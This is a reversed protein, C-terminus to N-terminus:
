RWPVWVPAEVSAITLGTEKSAVSLSAVYFGPPLWLRRSFTLHGETDVDMESGDETFWISFNPEPDAGPTAIRFTITIKRYDSAKFSHLKSYFSLSLPGGVLYGDVLGTYEIWPGDREARPPERRMYPPASKVAKLDAELEDIRQRLLMGDVYMVSGFLFSFVAVTALVYKSV